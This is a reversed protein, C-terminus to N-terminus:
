SGSAPQAAPPQATSGTFVPEIFRARREEWQAEDREQRRVRLLDFLTVYLVLSLILIMFTGQAAVIWREPLPRGRLKALTAFAMHGGDLVPLPLLNLLALNINILVTLALLYRFDLLATKFLVYGIGIPGSLKSLGLDSHPSLLALLVRWTQRVDRWLRTLPDIRELYALRRFLLGPHPELRGASDVAVWEPQLPIELTADGRRVQLVSPRDPRAALRDQLVYSSFVPAGEVALIEDGPLLGAREAPSNPYVSEVVLKEAAFIGVRRTHEDGGLLPFAVLELTQGAREVRFATQARGDPARAQGTIIAYQVELWDAVPTGDIAVIRDGAQLGAQSAPSPVEEAERGATLTPAVGGIVTTSQSYNTYEGAVWLVTGLLLAFLVNFVAGMVSVIMKDAYSIPPLPAAGAESEGELARLDALQPLAVYGGLPIASIRYEVGDRRWALLKPGFGISFRDVRLGRRRAALFHGLEHVFISAGFFLVVLFLAWPTHLIELFQPLNM